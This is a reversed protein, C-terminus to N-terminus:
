CHVTQQSVLWQTNIIIGMRRQGVRLQGPSDVDRTDSTGDDTKVAFSLKTDDLKRLPPPLGNLGSSFSCLETIFAPSFLLNSGFNRHSKRAHQVPLTIFCWVALPLVKFIPAFRRLSGKVNFPTTQPWLCPFCNLVSMRFPSAWHNVRTADLMSSLKSYHYAINYMFTM